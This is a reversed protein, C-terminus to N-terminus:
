SPQKNKALWAAKRDLHKRYKEKKDSLFEERLARLYEPTVQQITLGAEKRKPQANTLEAYGKIGDAVNRANLAYTHALFDAVSLILCKEKSGTTRTGLVDVGMSTYRERRERFIRETDGVNSHGDEIVLSLRHQMGKQDAVIKLLHEMSALFCIGYQSSLHMKPPAADKYHERYVEYSLSTAVGETLGDRVIVTLETILDMCKTDSWGAFNGRKAKFETTHFIRFGYKRQLGKLRRNFLEWQRTTGLLAGMVMHPMPGHTDSEDIYGTFLM